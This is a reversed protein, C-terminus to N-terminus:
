PKHGHTTQQEEKAAKARGREGVEVNGRVIMILLSGLREISIQNSYIIICDYLYNAMKVSNSLHLEFSSDGIGFGFFGASGAVLLMTMVGAAAM